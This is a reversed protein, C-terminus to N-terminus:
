KEFDKKEKLKPSIQQLANEVNIYNQLDSLAIVTYNNELLYQMYKKFLHPPTTVWPHAYDPVGHITLVVIKGNKAQQIAKMVETSDMGGVNYSPILYPYDKKPNYPRNGGTRAFLYGKKKLVGFAYSAPDWAPYAFTVPAPIDYKKCKKEIYNLEKIFQKRNIEPLERHHGTHNGIEFGMEHLKKIQKWTLYYYKNEFDPFESIFFTAGFNYKKLIPAVETYGTSVADDFTLVVLHDPIPKKLIQTNGKTCGALVILATLCIIKLAYFKISTM